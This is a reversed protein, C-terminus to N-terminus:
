RPVPLLMTLRFIGDSATMSLSGGHGEAIRRISKTGFGHLAREAKTTQPLGDCFVLEGVYPNEVRVTVMDRRRRVALSVYRGGGEDVQTAAEIANDMANGFLSCLESASLFELAAGDALCSFEIGRTECVLSKETLVTDLIENGTRVTADFLAVDGAIDALARNAQDSMSSATHIQHRIDHLRVNVAELSERNMEYQREREQALRALSAGEVEFHKKFLMEYEAFLVFVCILGHIVRLWANDSAALGEREVGGVVVGFGIVVLVVGVFVFIVGRERAAVLRYRRVKRIFLLYCIAYVPVIVALRQLSREPSDDGGWGLGGVLAILLNDLSSALNQITYGTVACFLASLPTADFIAFVVLGVLLLVSSFYLTQLAYPLAGFDVGLTGEGLAFGFACGFSILLALALRVWFQPRRPLDAATLLTPVGVQVLLSSAHFLGAWDVALGSM